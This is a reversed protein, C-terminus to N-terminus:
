RNNDCSMNVWIFNQDVVLYTRRKESFIGEETFVKWHRNWKVLVDDKNVKTSAAALIM